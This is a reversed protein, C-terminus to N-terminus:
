ESTCTGASTIGYGEDCQQDLCITSVGSLECYDCNSTCDGCTVVSGVLHERKGIECGGELCRTNGTASSDYVCTECNTPCAAIIPSRFKYAIEGLVEHVGGGRM